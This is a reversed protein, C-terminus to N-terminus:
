PRGTHIVIQDGLRTSLRVGRVKASVEGNGKFELKMWMPWVSEGDLRADVMEGNDLYVDLRHNEREAIPAFTDAPPTTPWEM